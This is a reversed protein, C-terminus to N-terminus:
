MITFYLPFSNKRSMKQYSVNQSTNKLYNLKVLSKGPHEFIPFKHYLINYYLHLHLDFYVRMKQKEDFMQKETNM